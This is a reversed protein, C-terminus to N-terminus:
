GDRCSGPASSGFGGSTIGFGTRYVGLRNSLATGDFRRLLRIAKEIAEGAILREIEDKTSSDARNILRRVLSNGSSNIWYTQPKTRQGIIDAVDTKFLRSIQQNVRMEINLLYHILDSKDITRM